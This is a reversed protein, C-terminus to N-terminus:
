IGTVIGILAGSKGGFIRHEEYYPLNTLKSLQCLWESNNM